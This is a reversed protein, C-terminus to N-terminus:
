IQLKRKTFAVPDRIIDKLHSGSWQTSDASECTKSTGNQWLPPSSESKPSVNNVSWMPEPNPPSIGQSNLSQLPQMTLYEIMEPPEANVPTDRTANNSEVPTIVTGIISSINSLDELNCHSLDDAFVEPFTLDPPIEETKVTSDPSSCVVHNGGQSPEEGNELM